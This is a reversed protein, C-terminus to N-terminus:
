RKFTLKGELWTEKVQLKDLERVDVDRIDQDLVVLDAKKGVELTGTEKELGLQQAPNITIAKLAELLSIRQEPGLIRKNPHHHLPHSQPGPDAHAHSHPSYLERLIATRVYLLPHLETVPTDSHLSFLLSASIDTALPHIHSARAPGPHNTLL